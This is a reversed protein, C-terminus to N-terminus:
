PTRGMVADFIARAWMADALAEHRAFEGPEVGVARSLEESDWPPTAIARLETAQEITGEGNELRAAYANLWGAALNEVDILHYEWSPVLGHERLLPALTETDFNPVAGIIHAKHTWVAIRKAAEARSMPREAIVGESIERGIPHREYFKGVNLGFLDASSLDIDVFFSMEREGGGAARRIIGVEWVKRGPHVGDTETDLFCLVTM